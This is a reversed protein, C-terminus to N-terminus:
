RKVEPSPKLANYKEFDLGIVNSKNLSIKRDVIKIADEDESEEKNEEPKLGSLLTFISKSDKKDEPKKSKNKPVYAYMEGNKDGGDKSGKRGRKGSAAQMQEETRIANKQVYM